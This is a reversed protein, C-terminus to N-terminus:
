DEDDPKQEPAGPSTSFLCLLPGVNEGPLKGEAKGPLVACNGAGPEGAAVDHGVFPQCSDAPLAEGPSDTRSMDPIHHLDRVLDERGDSGPPRRGTLTPFRLMRRLDATNLNKAAMARKEILHWSLFALAFTALFSLGFLAPLSLM